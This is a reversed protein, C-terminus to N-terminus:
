SMHIACAFTCVTHRGLIFGFQRSYQPPCQKHDERATPQAARFFCFGAGDHLYNVRLLSSDFKHIAKRTEICEEACVLRLLSAYFARYANRWGCCACTEVPLLGQLHWWRTVGVATDRGAVATRVM